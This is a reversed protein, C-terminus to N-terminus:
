KWRVVYGDTPRLLWTNTCVLTMMAQPLFTRQILLLMARLVKQTRELDVKQDLFLVNQM